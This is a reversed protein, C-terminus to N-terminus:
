RGELKACHPCPETRDNCYHDYTSDGCFSCPVEVKGNCHKALAERLAAAQAEAKEARAKWEDRQEVLSAVGQIAEGQVDHGRAGVESLYALTQGYAAADEVSDLVTAELEAVRVNAADLARVTALFRADDLPCRMAPAGHYAVLREAEPTTYSKADSM